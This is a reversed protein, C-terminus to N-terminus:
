RKCRGGRAKEALYTRIPDLREIAEAVAKEADDRRPAADWPWLEIAVSIVPIIRDGRAKERAYDLAATATTQDLCLRPGELPDGLRGFNDRRYCTIAMTAQSRGLLEALQDAAIQQYVRKLVPKQEVWLTLRVKKSGGTVSLM